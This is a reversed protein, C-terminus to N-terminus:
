TNLGPTQHIPDLIFRDPESTSIKCIYEYPTLGKLTKLRRGFNYADIFDHLHTELQSRSNVEANPSLWIESNAPLAAGAATASPRAVAILVGTTTPVALLAPSSPTQASTPSVMILAAGLAAYNIANM